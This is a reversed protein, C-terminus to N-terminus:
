PGKTSTGRNNKQIAMCIAVGTSLRGCAPASLVLPAPNLRTASGWGSGTFENMWMVSDTLGVAACVLRRPGIPACSANSNFPGSSANPMAAWSTGASWNTTTFAGGIFENWYISSNSAHLFCMVRGASALETCTPPSDSQLAGLSLQASWTGAAEYRYAILQRFSNWMMCIVKGNRDSACSPASYTVGFGDLNTFASWSSGNFVSSTLGGTQSRAVCLVNGATLTACSPKSAVRVTALATAPAGWVGGSYVVAVLYGQSGKAVCIIKSAGDDACSPDTYIAGPINRWSSWSTGSYEKVYLSNSIAQAACVAKGAIGACSPTGVVSSGGMDISPSWAADAGRPLAMLCLATLVFLLYRM